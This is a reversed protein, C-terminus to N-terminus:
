FRLPYGVVGQIEPEVSWGADAGWATHPAVSSSLVAEGHQAIDAIRSNSGARVLHQEGDLQAAAAGGAKPHVGDARLHLAGPPGEKRCAECIPCDLDDLFWVRARLVEDHQLLPAVVQSLVSSPGEAEAMALIVPSLDMSM